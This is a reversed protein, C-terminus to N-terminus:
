SIPWTGRRRGGPGIGPYGGRQRRLEHQEVVSVRCGCRRLDEGLRFLVNSSGSEALPCLPLAAYTPDLGDVLARVLPLDIALEDDHLRHPM